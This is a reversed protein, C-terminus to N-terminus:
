RGGKLANREAVDAQRWFFEVETSRLSRYILERAVGARGDIGFLGTALLRDLMASSKPSLTVTLRVGRHYAHSQKPRRM